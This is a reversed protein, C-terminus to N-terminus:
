ASKREVDGSLAILANVLKDLQVIATGMMTPNISNDMLIATRLRGLSEIDHKYTKATRRKIPRSM